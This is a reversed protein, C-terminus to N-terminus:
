QKTDKDKTSFLFFLHRWAGLVFKLFLSFSKFFLSLRIIQRPRLYYKRIAFKRLQDLEKKGLATHRYDIPIDPTIYNWKGWDNNNEFDKQYYKKFIATGPYPILINFGAMISDLQLAFDITEMVTEKTDMPNGIMFSNFYHLGIRKLNMCTRLMTEKSIKKGLQQLVATNGSEIGLQVYICGAKKMMKLLEINQCHDTRAFIFWTINLKEKIIRRCIEMAREQDAIFNDDMIHFHRIKYVDILHRILGLLYDISHTRLKRGMVQNACFTCSAPCGRSSMISTSIERVRYVVSPAYKTVPLLHYAPYPITDLDEIGPRNPTLMVEGNNRYCIGNIGFFDTKKKELARVLDIITLEGEGVVVFDVCPTLKLTQEPLASVHPGGMIIPVKPLVKKLEFAIRQAANFTPTVTTLGILEPEFSKAEDILESLPTNHLNPDLIKVEHDANELMAAIYLLGLPISADQRIDLQKYIVLYPPNILAIRM